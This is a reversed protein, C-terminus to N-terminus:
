WFYRLLETVCEVTVVRGPWVGDVAPPEQDNGSITSKYKRFQAYSLDDLEGNVTRRTQHAADIPELTQTLGRASYEPIGIGSLTLLTYDSM